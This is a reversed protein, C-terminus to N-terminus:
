EDLCVERNLRVANEKLLLKLNELNSLGLEDGHQICFPTPKNHSGFWSFSQPICRGCKEKLKCGDCGDASLTLFRNFADGQWIEKISKDRINDFKIINSPINIRALPCPSVKGDSNIECFLKAAPCSYVFDKRNHVNNVYPMDVFKVYINERECEEIICKWVSMDVETESAFIDSNKVSRGDVSITSIYWSVPKLIKIFSLMELMKDFNGRHLCTAISFPVGKDKLKNINDVTISFFADNMKGNIDRRLFGHVDSNHGDLSIKLGVIYEKALCITDLINSGFVANTTLVFYLNHKVLSKIIDNFDPHITPEGGSINVFFVNNKSLDEFVLDWETGTLENKSKCFGYDGYCHKCRMNCKSTLILYCDHPVLLRENLDISRKMYCWSVCFKVM